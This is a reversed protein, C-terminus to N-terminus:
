GKCIREAEPLCGQRFAEQQGATPSAKARNECAEQAQGSIGWNRHFTTGYNHCFRRGLRQKSTQAYQVGLREAAQELERSTPVCVRTHYDQLGRTDVGILGCQSNTKVEEKRGAHCYTEFCYNGVGVSVVNLFSETEPTGKPCYTM